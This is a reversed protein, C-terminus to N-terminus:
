PMRYQPLRHAGAGARRAGFLLEWLSFPRKSPPRVQVPRGTKGSLKGALIVADELGGLVDILGLELAQRGSFVEGTALEDLQEPTLHRERAVAAAFQDHLDDVIRQFSRRDSETPARFPSGADKLPGSKVTEFNIGVKELLETTIPYDLIVGISGTATGASAMITDAGIAVYYGGSAAVNGLSAIVPKSGTDRVKRVKEYIEQSAAVSGGPSEVRLVIAEIDERRSYRELERVVREADLIVGRVEIVAVRPGDGAAWGDDQPSRFLAYLIFLLLLVTLALAWKMVRDYRSAM